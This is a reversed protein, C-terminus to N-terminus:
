MFRKFLFRGVMYVTLGITTPIAFDKWSYESVQKKSFGLYIIEDSGKQTITLEFSYTSFVIVSIHTSNGILVDTNAVGYDGLKFALDFTYNNAEVTCNSISSAKIKIPNGHYEGAFYSINNNNEDTDIDVLKMTFLYPKTENNEKIVWNGECFTHLNLPPYYKTASTAHFLAILFYM